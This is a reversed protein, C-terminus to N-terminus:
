FSSNTLNDPEIYTTVKEIFQFIYRMTSQFAEEDVAYQGVSLHSIVVSKNAEITYFNPQNVMLFTITSPM